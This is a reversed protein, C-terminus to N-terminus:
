RNCCRSPAPVEAASGQREIQESPTTEARVQSDQAEAQPQKQQSPVVKMAILGPAPSDRRPQSSRIIVSLLIFVLTVFTVCLTLMTSTSHSRWCATVARWASHVSHPRAAPKRGVIPPEVVLIPPEKPSRASLGSSTEM